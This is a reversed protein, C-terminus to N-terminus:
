SKKKKNFSMKQKITELLKRMKNFTGTADPLNEFPIHDEIGQQFAVDSPLKKASGGKQLIPTGYDKSISGTGKFQSNIEIFPSSERTDTSANPLPTGPQSIVLPTGPQSSMPSGIGLEGFTQISTTSENRMLKGPPYDLKESDSSMSDELVIPNSSDDLVIPNASKEGQSDSQSDDNSDVVMVDTDESDENENALSQQILKYQAELEELSPSVSRAESGQRSLSRIPPPM